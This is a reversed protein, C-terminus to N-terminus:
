TDPKIYLPYVQIDVFLPVFSFYSSFHVINSVVFNCLNEIIKRKFVIFYLLRIGSTLCQGCNENLPYYAM